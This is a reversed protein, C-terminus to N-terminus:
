SKSVRDARDASPLSKADSERSIAKSRKSSIRWPPKLPMSWNTRRHNLLWFPKQLSIRVFGSKGNALVDAQKTAVVAIESNSGGTNTLYPEMHHKIREKILTKAKDQKTSAIGPLYINMKM